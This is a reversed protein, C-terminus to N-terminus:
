ETRWALCHCTPCLSSTLGPLLSNAVDTPKIPARRWALRDTQGWANGLSSEVEGDKNPKKLLSISLTMPHGNSKRCHKEREVEEHSIYSCWDIINRDNKHNGSVCVWACSKQAGFM